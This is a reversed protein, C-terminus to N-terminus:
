GKDSGGFRAVFETVGRTFNGRRMADWHIERDLAMAEEFPLTVAAHLDRKAAAVGIRGAREAVRKAFAQTEPLLSAADYLREVLGLDFARRPTISEGELVFDLARSPGLLRALMAGGGGGSPLVGFLKMEPVGIQIRDDDTAFRLDCAVAFELGGALAHGNLAAVFLTDSRRLRICVSRFRDMLVNFDELLQAAGAEGLITGMWSADAGASFLRLRSTIVVVALEPDDEIRTLNSELAGLLDSSIANIPPLDLHWTEFGDEREVLIPGPDGLQRQSM